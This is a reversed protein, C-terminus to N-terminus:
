QLARRLFLALRRRYQEEEEFTLKFRSSGQELSKRWLKLQRNMVRGVKRRRSRRVGRSERALVNASLFSGDPKVFHKYTPSPIGHSQVALFRRDGVILAKVTPLQRDFWTQFTGIDRVVLSPTDQGGLRRGVDDSTLQRFKGKEFTWGGVDQTKVIHAGKFRPTASWAVYPEPTAWIQRTFCLCNHAYPPILRRNWPLASGERNDRYFTWGDRAAHSARTTEAFVSRLEYGELLSRPIEDYDRQRDQELTQLAKERMVIELGRIMGGERSATRFPGPQKTTGIGLKSDIFAKIASPPKGKRFQNAVAAAFGGGLAAALVRRSRTLYGDQKQRRLEDQSDGRVEDSRLDNFSSNTAYQTPDVDGRIEDILPTKRDQFMEGNLVILGSIKLMVHELTALDWKVDKPEKALPMTHGFSDIPVGAGAFAQDLTLLEQTSTDNMEVVTAALRETSSRTLQLLRNRADSLIGSITSATPRPDAFMAGLIQDRLQVTTSVIPGLYSASGALAIITKIDSRRQEDTRTELATPM